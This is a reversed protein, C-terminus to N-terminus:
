LLGEERLFSRLKEMTRRLVTKVSNRNMQLADAIEGASDLLWYHRIFIIRSQQPQEALFRNVAETVARTEVSREVNEAAALLEELEDLASEMAGSGRKEAHNKRYRSIATRRVATLVFAELHEPEAPPIANWVSLFAENVCEEADERSNLIREALRQCVAGYQAGTERIAREDRAQYLAMIENPNM